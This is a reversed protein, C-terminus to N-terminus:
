RPAEDISRSGTSRATAATTRANLDSGTRVYRSDYEDAGEVRLAALVSEDPLPQTLQTDLREDDVDAHETLGRERRVDRSGLDGTEPSFRQLREAELALAGVRPGM